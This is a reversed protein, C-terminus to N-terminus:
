RLSTLWGLIVGWAGFGLGWYELNGALTLKGGTVSAEREAAAAVGFDLLDLVEHGRRDRAVFVNAPKIDRHVVGFGHVFALTERLRLGLAVTESVPLQGRAALIGELTRGELMEMVVFPRGTVDVDADFVEVVNPHHVTGLLHAERLLRHRVAPVDVWEALLAKLAVIRGTVLHQAEFVVGM